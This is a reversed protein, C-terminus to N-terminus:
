LKSLLKRHYLHRYQPLEPYLGLLHRGFLRRGRSFPDRDLGPFFPALRTQLQRENREGEIGTFPLVRRVTRLAGNEPHVLAAVEAGEEEEELM